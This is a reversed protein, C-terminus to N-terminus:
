DRMAAAPDQRSIKLAPLLVALGVGVLGLALGGAGLGVLVPASPFLFPMGLSRIIYDRFLYVGLAALTLGSVAGGAALLGAEALLSGFIYSPTAGLARLVGIERRRENAAMSFVLGIMVLCLVSTITLVALMGRVLGAIQLRFTQFLQPSTIPMVGPVQSLIRMAVQNPDNGPAVRVLAASASDPPLVLSQEAQTASLRAIDKATQLTFFMTQDLNTGTPELNGKLTLFYGYVKINQEDPPVFVFNGGIAEGLDLGGPLHRELWPRLTFDSDPDYAVLFMESASCCSAGTLTSLYLQPSIAAVGQVRSIEKLKDAPMWVQTPDGMLLATEVKSEAGEPVVIIDAGLRELALELSAQAGGLIMTTSLYLGAVMLMCLLVIWSRFASGAINRLALQITSM